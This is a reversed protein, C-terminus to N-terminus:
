LAVTSQFDTPSLGSFTPHTVTVTTPSLRRMGTLTRSLGKGGFGGVIERVPGVVGESPGV